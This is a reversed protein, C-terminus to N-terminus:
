WWATQMGVTMEFLAFIIAAFILGDIRDLVGGHGPILGGSEKVGARRKFVSKFLDGGQASAALLLAVGLALVPRPASVALAVGYGFLAALAMGGFLGAWTKHPSIAPALKPGGILKGAGYAGIDTGWVVALLFYVLPAGHDPLMRLYVLALGSATLYLAGIVLWLASEYQCNKKGSPCVLRAWERFGLAMCLAAVGIYIWGGAYVALLAAPALVLASLLRLRLNADFSM